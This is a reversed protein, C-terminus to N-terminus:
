RLEDGHIFEPAKKRPYPLRDIQEGIAISRSHRPRRKLRLSTAIRVQPHAEFGKVNGYIFEHSEQKRMSRVSGMGSLEVESAFAM